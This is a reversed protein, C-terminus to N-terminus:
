TTEDDPLELHRFRALGVYGRRMVRVFHCQDGTSLRLQCIGPRIARVVNGCLEAAAGRLTSGPPVIALDGVRLDVPRGRWNADVVIVDGHGAESASLGFRQRLASRAEPLGARRLERARSRPIANLGVYLQVILTEYGVGLWGAVTLVHEPNPRHPDFGRARFGGLVASRPMLFHPAATNATQEEISDSQGDLNELLAHLLAGDSRYHHVLEHAITMAQRGSPRDAALLIAPSSGGVYLGELSGVPIFRVEVGVQGAIDAPCVADLPPIGARRRLRLAARVAHHGISGM